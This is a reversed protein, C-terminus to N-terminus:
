DTLMRLQATFQEPPRGLAHYPKASHDAKRAHFFYKGARNNQNTRAM